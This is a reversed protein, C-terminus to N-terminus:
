AVLCQIAGSKIPVAVPRKPAIRNFFDGKAKIAFFYAGSISIWFKRLPIRVSIERLLASFPAKVPRKNPLKLFGVKEVSDPSLQRDHVVAEPRNSAAVWGLRQADERLPLAEFVWHETFAWPGRQGLDM